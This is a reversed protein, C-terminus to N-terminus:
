KSFEFADPILKALTTDRKSDGSKSEGVLYIPMDSTFEVLVQRCIGCPTGPKKGGTVVACAIPKKEGAAIMQGIANREACICAGYSANEFNCGVYVNGDATAIAAGVKYNSYPAYANKRARKAAEVLYDRLADTKASSKKPAAGAKTKM